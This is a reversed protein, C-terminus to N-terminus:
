SCSFLSLSLPLSRFHSLVARYPAECCFITRGIVDPLFFCGQVYCTIAFHFIGILNQDVVQCVSLSLSSTIGLMLIYTLRVTHSLRPQGMHVHLSTNTTLLVLRFKCEPSATKWRRCNQSKEQKEQTSQPLAQFAGRNHCM